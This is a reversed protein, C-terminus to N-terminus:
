GCRVAQRTQDSETISAIGRETRLYGGNHDLSSRWCPQRLQTGFQCKQAALINGAAQTRSINEPIVTVM